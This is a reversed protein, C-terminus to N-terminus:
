HTVGDAREALRLATEQILRLQVGNSLRHDGDKILTLTVDSGHIADLTKVAHSAPVDADATGQLIRVPCQPALGEPFLLHKEGDEILKLTIPYPDGYDSPRLFVGDRALAERDEESAQNWMLDRTMDTAPAILVLGAVRRAAPPDERMLKRLMLQALWGGMSSGIVIRANATHTLFMHTAQELWLSITGDSFDGGSQGHGSYDFRVLNRRTARALEALAEAKSGTMDSKFGGLWFLGTPSVGAMAGDKRYAIRPGALDTEYELM